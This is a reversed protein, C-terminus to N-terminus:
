RDRWARVFVLIRSKVVARKGREEGGRVVISLNADLTTNSSQSEFTKLSLKPLNLYLVTLLFM